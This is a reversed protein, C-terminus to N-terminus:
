VANAKRVRKPNLGQAGSFNSLASSMQINSTSQNVKKYGASTRYGNSGAALKSKQSHM